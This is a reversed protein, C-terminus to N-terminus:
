MNIKNVLSKILSIKNGLLNLEEVQLSSKKINDHNIKGQLEINEATVMLALSMFLKEESFTMFLIPNEEKIMNIKNNLEVAIKKYISEEGDECSLIYMKSNIEVDVLSM